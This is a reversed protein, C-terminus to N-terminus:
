PVVITVVKSLKVEPSDFLYNNIESDWTSVWGSPVPFAAINVTAGKRLRLNSRQADDFYLSSSFVLANGSRYISSYIYSQYSFVTSSAPTDYSFVIIAAGSYFEELSSLMGDIKITASSDIVEVNLQSVFLSPFPIQFLTNDSYLTGGGIFQINFERM